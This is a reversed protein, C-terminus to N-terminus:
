SVTGVLNQLSTLLASYALVPVSPVTWLTSSLRITSDSKHGYFVHGLADFELEMDSVIFCRIM